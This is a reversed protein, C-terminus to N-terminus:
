NQQFLGTHLNFVRRRIKVLFLQLLTKGFESAAYGHDLNATRGFDFHFFAFVANVM